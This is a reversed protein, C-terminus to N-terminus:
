NSALVLVGEERCQRRSGVDLRVVAGRIFFQAAVQWQDYWWPLAAQPHSVLDNGYFFALAVEKVVRKLVLRPVVVRLVCADDEYDVDPMRVQTWALSRKELEQAVCLEAHSLLLRGLRTGSFIRKEGNDFLGLV